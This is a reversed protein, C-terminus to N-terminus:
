VLLIKRSINLYFIFDVLFFLCHHLEIKGAMSQLHLSHEELAELVDDPPFVVFVETDRHRDFKLFFKRWSEEINLLRNEIKLEKNAVEVIDSVAEVHMHLNLVLLDDLCFGQGRDIAMGTIGECFITLIFM